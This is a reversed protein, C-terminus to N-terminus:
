RRAKRWKAPDIPADDAWLGRKAAKANNHQARLSKCRAWGLGLTVVVRALDLQEDTTVHALLRGYRDRAVEDVVVPAGPAALLTVVHAARDGHPQGIEPADVCALRIREKGGGSTRAVVLTDGDTVRDVVGRWAEAHALPPLGCIVAGLVVGGVIARITRRKM